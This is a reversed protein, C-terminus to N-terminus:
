VAKCLRACGLLKPRIILDRFVGGRKVIRIGNAVWEGHQGILFDRNLQEKNKRINERLIKGPSVSEDM